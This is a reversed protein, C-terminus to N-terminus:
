KILERFAKDAEPCVLFYKTPNEIHNFGYTLAPYKALVKKDSGAYRSLNNPTVGLKVLYQLGSLWEQKRAM